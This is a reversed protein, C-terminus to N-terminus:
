LAFMKKMEQWLAQKLAQNSAHAPAANAFLLSSGHFHILKYPNVELQLQLAQPAIGFIMVQVAGTASLWRRLPFPYRQFSYCNVDEMKKQLGKEVMSRIFEHSALDDNGSYLVLVPRKAVDPFATDPEPDPRLLYDHRFLYAAAERTYM